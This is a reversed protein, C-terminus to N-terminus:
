LAACRHNDHAVYRDVDREGTGTLATGASLRVHRSGFVVGIVMRGVQADYRPRIWVTRRRASRQVLLSVPSAAVCSPTVRGRCSHASIRRVLQRESLGASGDAGVIWDGPELYRSAPAQTSTVQRTPVARGLSWVVVLILAFAIILNVAPGALIVVIRRWPAQHIYARPRHCAPIEERASMGTIKVYGGLPLWGVRYETEGRTTRLLPKGFFLSFREVRM